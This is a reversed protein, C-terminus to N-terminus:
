PQPVNFIQSLGLTNCGLLAVRGPTQLASERRVTCCDGCCASVSSSAEPVYLLFAYDQVFCEWRGVLLPDPICHKRSVRLEQEGSRWITSHSQPVRLHGASWLLLISSMLFSNNRDGEPVPLCLVVVWLIIARLASQNDLSRSPNFCNCYWTFKSLESRKSYGSYLSSIKVFRDTSNQSRLWNWIVPWQKRKVSEHQIMCSRTEMM